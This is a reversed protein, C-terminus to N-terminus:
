IKKPKNEKQNKEPFKNDLQLYPKMKNFFDQMLNKDLEQELRCNIKVLVVKKMISVKNNISLM